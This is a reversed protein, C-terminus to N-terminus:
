GALEHEWYDIASIRAARVKADILSAVQEETLQAGLEDLHLTVSAMHGQGRDDRWRFAWALASWGAPEPSVHHAQSKWPVDQTLAQELRTEVLTGLRNIRM